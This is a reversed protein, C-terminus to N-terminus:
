KTEEMMMDLSDFFSEKQLRVAEYKAKAEKWKKEADLMNGKAECEQREVLNIYEMWSIGAM